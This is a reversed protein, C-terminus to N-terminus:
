SKSKKYTALNTLAAKYLNLTARNLTFMKNKKMDAFDQFTEWILSAGVSDEKVHDLDILTADIVEKEIRAPDINPQALFDNIRKEIATLTETKLDFAEAVPEMSDSQSSEVGAVESTETRVEEDTKISSMERPVLSYKAKMDKYKGTKQEIKGIKNDLKTKTNQLKTATKKLGALKSEMVKMKETIGNAIDKDTFTALADKYQALKGEADQVGSTIDTISKEIISRNEIKNAYDYKGEIKEIKGDIRSAFSNKAETINEKFRGIASEAHTRRESSANIKIGLESDKKDFMAKKDLKGRNLVDVLDPDTYQAIKADFLGIEKQSNQQVEAREDNLLKEAAEAKVIERERKAILGNNTDLTTVAKWKDITNLKITDLVDDKWETAVKAFKDLHLKEKIWTGANKLKEGVKETLSPSKEEEMGVESIAHGDATVM